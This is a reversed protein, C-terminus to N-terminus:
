MTSTPRVSGDNNNSFSSLHALANMQGAGASLNDIAQEALKKYEQFQRLKCVNCKIREDLLRKSPLRNTTM